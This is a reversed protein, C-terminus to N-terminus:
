SRRSRVRVSNRSACPVRRRPSNGPIRPSVRRPFSGEKKLWAAVEANKPHTNVDDRDASTWWQEAARNLIALKKSVHDGATAMSASPASLSDLAAAFLAVAKELEAPVEIQLANAWRVVDVPRWQQYPRNGSERVLLQRIREFAAATPHFRYFSQIEIHLKEIPAIGALLASTEEITWFAARAWHQFDAPTAAVRALFGKAKEIESDRRRPDTLHLLNAFLDVDIQSTVRDEMDRAYKEILLERMEAPSKSKLEALSLPANAQNGGKVHTGRPFELPFEFPVPLSEGWSRFDAAAILHFGLYETPNVPAILRLAGRALDIEAITKRYRVIKVDKRDKHWRPEIDCSLVIADDLPLLSFNRWYLWDPKQRDPEAGTEIATDSMQTLAIEIEANVPIGNLSHWMAIIDASRIWVDRLNLHKEPTFTPGGYVAHEDDNSLKFELRVDDVERNGLISKRSDDALPIWGEIWVVKCAGEFADKPNGAAARWKFDAGTGEAWAQAYKGEEALIDIGDSLYEL